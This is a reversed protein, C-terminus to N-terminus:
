WYEELIAVPRNHAQLFLVFLRTILLEYTATKRPFDWVEEKGYQGPIQETLTRLTKTQSKGTSVECETSYM